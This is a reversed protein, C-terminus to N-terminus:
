SADHIMIFCLLRVAVTSNHHDYAVQLAAALNQEAVDDLDTLDIRTLWTM